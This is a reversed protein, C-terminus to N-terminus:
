GHSLELSHLAIFSMQPMLQQVYIEQTTEVLNPVLEWLITKALLLLADKLPGEHINSSNSANRWLPTIQQEYQQRWPHIHELILQITQSAGTLTLRAVTTETSFSFESIHIEAAAQGTIQNLVKQLDALAELYGGIHQNFRHPTLGQALGYSKDTLTIRDVTRAGTSFYVFMYQQGLRLLDGMRLPHPEYALLRTENLWTGNTSNLDEITPQEGSFLLRAHRRSVSGAVEGADSLDLDPAPEGEVQRGIMIEQQGQRMKLKIPNKKGAVLFVVEDINIALPQALPQLIDVAAMAPTAITTMGTLAAGCHTCLIADPENSSDCRPCYKKDQVALFMRGKV